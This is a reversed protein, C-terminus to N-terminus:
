EKRIKEATEPDVVADEEMLEAAVEELLTPKEHTKRLPIEKMYFMLIISLISLIFALMFADHFGGILAPSAIGGDAAGLRTNIVSGMISVGVVGGFVRSFGVASTVMGLKSYEFANQVVILVLPMLIGVGAGLAIVAYTLGEYGVAQFSSLMYLGACILATGAIGLTKYRGTRSILQGGVASAITQALLLPTLAAGADSISRGFVEEIVLPLFTVSGFMAVASIFGVGVGVSFIRNQFLSLPLVPESARAEARIFMVLATLSCALLLLYIADGSGLGSVLYIIGCVMFVIFWFAGALDLKHAHAAPNAVKTRSLLYLTLLGMPLNVFFIWHWSLRETIVAGAMPGIVSSVAFVAAILGQWKGREAPPFIDGIIAMSNAMMVGGGIGQFARSLILSLMNESLGALVSGTIFVVIGWFYVNKRGRMDGLKGSLMVAITSTVMYATFVWSFIDLGGLQRVVTPMATSVITQDLSSLFIGLLISSLMQAREIGLGLFRTDKEMNALRSM